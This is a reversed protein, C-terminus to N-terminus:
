DRVHVDQCVETSYQETEKSDVELAPALKMASSSIDQFVFFIEYM